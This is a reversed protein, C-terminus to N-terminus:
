KYIFDPHNLLVWFMDSVAQEANKGRMHRLMTETERSTPDRYLIHHFVNLVLDQATLEQNEFAQIFHRVHPYLSPDYSWEQLIASNMLALTNQVTVDQNRAIGNFFDGRGFNELFVRHRGMDTLLAEANLGFVTEPIPTEGNEDFGLVAFDNPETPDPLQWSNTHVQGGKGLVLFQPQIGLVQYYSEAIAEAELRRVRKNDRWYAWQDGADVAGAGSATIRYNAQYVKSKAILGILQRYDYQHEIFWSTLFELLFSNKPQTTLGNEAAVSASVRLPDWGNLPELFGEGFLHAWIRNVMNRAFQRDATLMRALAQRRTEGAQPKEGTFPYAPEVIGGRRPPRMGQGPRSEAHYQGDFLHAEPETGSDDAFSLYIAPNASGLGLGDLDGVRLEPFFRDEDEEEEIGVPHHLYTASLFSALGWFQKRTMRSLGTNVEELHGAGDHCSICNTQMGLFLDSIWAAQDDLIDLREVETFAEKSWFFMAAKPDQTTGTATLLERVMQDWPMNTAVMQRLRQDFANRIIPTQEFIVQNQFMDAFFIAWRHTFSESNLIFKIEQDYKEPNSSTVFSRTRNVPPLTGALDLWVRRILERDGLAPAKKSSQNKTEEVLPQLHKPLETGAKQAIAPTLPLLLLIWVCLNRLYM